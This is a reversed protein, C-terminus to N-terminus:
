ALRRQIRFSEETDAEPLCDNASGRPDGKTGLAAVGSMGFILVVMVDAVGMGMGM